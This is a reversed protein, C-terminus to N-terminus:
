LPRFIFHISKLHLPKKLDLFICVAFRLYHIVARIKVEDNSNKIIAKQVGTSSM